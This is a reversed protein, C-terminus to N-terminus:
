VPSTGSDVNGDGNANATKGSTFIQLTILSARIMHAPEQMGTAASQHGAQHHLERNARERKRAKVKAKAKAEAKAMAKAKSRAKAEAFTRLICYLDCEDCCM